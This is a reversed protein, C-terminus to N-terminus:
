GKLGMAKRISAPDNAGGQISGGSGNTETGTSTVIRYTYKGTYKPNEKLFKQAAKTFDTKEDMMQAVKFMVYDLDEERVGNKQLFATNKYEELERRAEDRELRLTDTNGIEAKVRSLREQVIRNVEEQTFTREPANEVTAGETQTTNQNNDM